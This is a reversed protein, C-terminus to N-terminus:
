GEETPLLVLQLSPQWKSLYGGSVSSDESETPPCTLTPVIQRSRWETGAEWCPVPLRQLQTVLYTHRWLTNTFLITGHHRKQLHPNNNMGDNMKCDVLFIDWQWNKSLQSFFLSTTQIIKITNVHWCDKHEHRDQSKVETPATPNTCGHESLSTCDSPPTKESHKPLVTTNGPHDAECCSAGCEEWAPCSWWGSAWCPVPTRQLM